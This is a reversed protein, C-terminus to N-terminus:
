HSGREHETDEAIKETFLKEYETKLDNIEAEVVTRTNLKKKVMKWFKEKDMEILKEFDLQEANEVSKQSKRVEKRFTTM